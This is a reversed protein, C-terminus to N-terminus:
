RGLRIESPHRGASTPHQHASLRLPHKRQLHTPIPIHTPLVPSDRQQQITQKPSLHLSTSWVSASSRSRLGMRTHSARQELRARPIAQGPPSQIVVRLRLREKTRQLGPIDLPPRPYTHIQDKAFVFWTQPISLEGLCDQSAFCM